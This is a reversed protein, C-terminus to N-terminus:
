SFEKPTTERKVVTLEQHLWSVKWVSISHKSRRVLLEDLSCRPEYHITHTHREVCLFCGIWVIEQKSLNLKDRTHTKLTWVSCPFISCIFRGIPIKQCSCHEWRQFSSQKVRFGVYSFVKHASERKVVTLGQCLWIVKRFSGNHKSRGELIWDLLVGLNM